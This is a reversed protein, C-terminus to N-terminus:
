AFKINEQAIEQQMVLKRGDIVAEADLPMYQKVEIDATRAAAGWTKGEKLARMFHLYYHTGAATPDVMQNPIDGKTQTFLTIRSQLDKSQKYEENGIM